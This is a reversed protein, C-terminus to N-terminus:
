LKKVHRCRVTARECFLFATWRQWDVSKKRLKGAVKKEHLQSFHVATSVVCAEQSKVRSSSSIFTKPVQQPQGASRM